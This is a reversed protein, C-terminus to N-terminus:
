LSTTERSWVLYVDGSGGRGLLSLAEYKGSLVPYPAHEAPSTSAGPFWGQSGSPTRHADRDRKWRVFLRLLVAFNESSYLPDQWLANLRDFMCAGSESDIRTMWSAFEPASVVSGWDPLFGNLKRYFDNKRRTNPLRGKLASLLETDTTM